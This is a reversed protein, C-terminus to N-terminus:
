LGVALDGLRPLFLRHLNESLKKGLWFDDPLPADFDAATEISGKHLGAVRKKLPTPPLLRAVPLNKRAIVVENGATIFALLEALHAQAEAFDVTKVSM